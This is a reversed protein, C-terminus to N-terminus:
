QASYAILAPRGGSRPVGAGVLLFSGALAPCSNIGPGTRTTWLPAGDDTDTAYVTGDFTSTFVVGSALTACGFDPQPFHRVWAPAGTAADLAVLEGRGRRAIDVDALSEYGDLQRAHLPRRAPRYLRGSGYAMPTEAGGLLGPCVTTRHAPLRGSDNRHEGVPRTWLRRHTLADWAVM